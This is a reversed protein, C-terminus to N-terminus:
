DRAPRGLAADLMRAAERAAGAHRAERYASFVAKRLVDLPVPRDGARTREVEASLRILEALRELARRRREAPKDTRDWLQTTVEISQM